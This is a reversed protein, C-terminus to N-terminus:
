RLWHHIVCLALPAMDARPMWPWVSHISGLASITTARKAECGIAALAALSGCEKGEHALRAPCRALSQDLLTFKPVESTVLNSHSVESVYADRVGMKVQLEYGM